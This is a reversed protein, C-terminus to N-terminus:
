GPAKKYILSSFYHTYKKKILGDEGTFLENLLDHSSLAPIITQCAKKVPLIPIANNRQQTERELTAMLFQSRPFNLDTVLILSGNPAQDIIFLLNSIIQACNTFSDKSGPQDNLCNQMVFLNSSRIATIAGESRLTESDLLDYPVPLINIEGDWYNPSVALRTIERCVKWSENYKDFVFANASRIEPFHDSLFALWGIIEPCPGGGFFCANILGNNWSSPFNNHSLNSLETHVIEIYYPYYGLMYAARTNECSYDVQCPCCKYAKRLGRMIPRILRLRELFQEETECCNLYRLSEIIPTYPDHRHM